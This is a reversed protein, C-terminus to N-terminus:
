NLTFNIPIRMKSRVVHGDMEGPIWNPMGKMLRLAEEDLSLTTGREIKINSISGDKEVVFSLYVRGQENNVIATKPYRINKSVYEQFAASGGPYRAEVDPFDIIDEQEKLDKQSRSLLVIAFLFVLLSFIKSYNSRMLHNM